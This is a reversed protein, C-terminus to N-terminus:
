ATVPRIGMLADAPLAELMQAVSRGLRPHRWGPAVEALPVLVFGRDQMRPHPLILTEPAIEPQREPPLDRWADQTAADPLVLDDCAILDLDLGRAQWRPGQRERGFRAEIDHLQALIEAPPLETILAIAANVYDPGSGPPFAPTQWFRSVAQVRTGPLSSLHRLAARLTDEPAGALSHLNGGIAVLALKISPLSNQTM